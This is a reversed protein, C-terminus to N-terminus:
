PRRERGLADRLATRSMQTIRGSAMLVFQDDGYVAPEYALVHESEDLM